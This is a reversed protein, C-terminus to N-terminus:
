QEDGAELARLRRELIRIRANAGDLDDRLEEVERKLMEELDSCGCSDAQDELEEVRAKLDTFPDARNM